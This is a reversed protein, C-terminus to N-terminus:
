APGDLTGDQRWAVETLEPYKATVADGSSVGRLRRGVWPALHLRAWRVDTALRSRRTAPADPRGDYGELGDACRQDGFGLAELVAGAVRAHGSASLHLRDESWARPHAFADDGWLRVLVCQYRQSVEEVMTTLAKIRPLTRGILRSRTTPDVSQFLLVQSGNARLRRVAEEFRRAVADLDVRPRLLDNTGGSLSVLDPALEVARPVQEDVIAGIKRGRIALNAYRFGPERTAFEEAVRDAWGRFTGDGAASPDDLGETFSDGLAVFSAPVLCHRM